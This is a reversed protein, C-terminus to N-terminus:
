YMLHILQDVDIIGVSMSIGSMKIPSENSSDAVTCVQNQYQLVHSVIRCATDNNSEQNLEGGPILLREKIQEMSM